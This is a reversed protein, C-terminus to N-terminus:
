EIVGGRTMADVDLVRDVDAESMLGREVVVQRLTKGEAVAQVVVEATAEYGLSPALATAVAPSSEANRRCREVDPELGAVCRDALVRAASALLRVSELLNTGMVPVAVNLEFAGTAGAFAVAADNGVVQAVVQVVM